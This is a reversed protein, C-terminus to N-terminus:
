QVISIRTLNDLFKELANEFKLRYNSDINEIDPIGFYNELEYLILEKIENRSKNKYIM